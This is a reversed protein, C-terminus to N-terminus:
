GRALRFRQNSCTFPGWVYRALRGITEGAPGVANILTQGADLVWQRPLRRARHSRPQTRKAQSDVLEYVTWLTTQNPSVRRDVRM